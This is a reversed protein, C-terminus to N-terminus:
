MKLPHGVMVLSLVVSFFRLADEWGDDRPAVRETYVM